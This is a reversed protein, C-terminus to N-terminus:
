ARVTDIAVKRDGASGQGAGMLSPPCAIRRYRDRNGTAQVARNGSPVLSLLGTADVAVAVLMAAADRFVDPARSSDNKARSVTRQTHNPREAADPRDLLRLLIRKLKKSASCLIQRNLYHRTSPISLRALKSSATEKPTLACVKAKKASLRCAFRM